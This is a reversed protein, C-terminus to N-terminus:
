FELSELFRELIPFNTDFTSAESLFSVIIAQGREVILIDVGEVIAPISQLFPNNESVVFTYTMAATITEDPLVFTEESIVNYAALTQARELTLADFINRASTQPSIPRAAVQLTTKFGPATMDRVRFIYSETNEDLLWNQPYAATIGAQPNTYITTASLISERLNFGIFLGTISFILAFYHSWRQRFTLESRTESIEIVTM